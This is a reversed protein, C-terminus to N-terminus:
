YEGKEASVGRELGLRVLDTALIGNASENEVYTLGISVNNENAGSEGGFKLSISKSIIIAL